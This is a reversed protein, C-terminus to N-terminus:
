AARHDIRSHTRARSSRQFDYSEILNRVRVHLETTSFPKPLFDSAGARWPTLRQKRTWMRTILIIPVNGHGPQQFKAVLRCGDKEPMMMDLCFSTPRHAAAQDIAQQGDSVGIVNYHAPWSLSSSSCAHRAPRGAVLANFFRARKSVAVKVSATKDWRWAGAFLNARHYSIALAMGTSSVTQAAPALAAPEGNREPRPQQVRRCARNFSREPAPVLAPRYM